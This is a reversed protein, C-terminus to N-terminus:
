TRGRRKAPVRGAVGEAERAVEFFAREAAALFAGMRERAQREDRRAFADALGTLGEIVITRTAARSLTAIRVAQVHDAFRAITEALRRNPVAALWAARFAANALMLAAADNRDAAGRAADLAAALAAEGADDLHRAAEAAAEPELLRRVGFVDRVDDLTLRPLVFGRTTQVLYGERALALLAERAPMRSTGYLAAIEADVLREDPATEGRQLRARLDAYIRERLSEPKVLRRGQLESADLARM